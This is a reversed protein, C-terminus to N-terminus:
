IHDLFDSTARLEARTRAVFLWAALVLNRVFAAFWGAVFGVVFGWGFGVVAGGWSETYGTFYQALLVLLTPEPPGVLLRVATAGFVLLGAVAGVAVGLARKHIPAFALLLTRELEAEGPRDGARLPTVPTTRHPPDSLLRPM